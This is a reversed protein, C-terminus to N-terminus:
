VELSFTHVGNALEDPVKRLPAKNYDGNFELVFLGDHDQHYDSLLLEIIKDDSLGLSKARKVIERFDDILNPRVYYEIRELPSLTKWKVELAKNYEDTRQHEQTLKIRLQENQQDPIARDLKEFSSRDIPYLM